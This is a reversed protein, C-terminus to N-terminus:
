WSGGGGGGIGGGSFGGGGFGGGGFDGDSGEQPPISLMSDSASVMATNMFHQFMIFDFLTMDHYTNEYWQPSTMTISEFKKMWVDSVDLVYTFPLINYFYTPDSSVLEELKDKEVTELFNKFGRVRGLMQVGYASRKPMIAFFFILLVITVLAVLFDIRLPVFLLVAALIGEFGEYLRIPNWVALAAMVIMMVILIVRKMPFKQDYLKETHERSNMGGVITDITAYFYEKLDEEAVQNKGKPFLNRLFLEEEPNSGDYEKVKEITFGNKNDYIKLYGKNALYILLSVVDNNRVRGRYLFGTEISNKDEPPYFEVTEVPKTDKGFRLWICFTVLLFIAAMVIPLITSIGWNTGAYTFYGEPLQLRVTIGEQPDLTGSYSGTIVNGDVSYDLEDEDYGSTGYSGVSFGLADADFSSPMTITFTVNKITTDWQTGIINYYVEDYDSTGDKLLRYVYSLEYDVQGTMTEDADGLQFVRYSGDTSDSYDVNTQFDTISALYSYSDGDTGTVTGKFPIYRYIGHKQVLFDAGISETIDYSGDQNVQMNVDYSDVTYQNSNDSGTSASVTCPMLIMCVFIISLFSRLFRKKVCAQYSIISLGKKMLKM